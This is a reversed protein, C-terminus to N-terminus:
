CTRERGQNRIRHRTRTPQRDGQRRRRAARLRVVATAVRAAACKQGGCLVFPLLQNPGGTMKPLSEVLDASVTPRSSAPLSRIATRRSSIATSRSRRLPRRARRIRRARREAVSEFLRGGSDRAQGRNPERDAAGPGGMTSGAFTVWTAHNQRSYLSCSHVPFNGHILRGHQIEEFGEQGRGYFSVISQFLHKFRDIYPPLDHCFVVQIRGPVSNDLRRPLHKGLTAELARRDAVDALRGPRVHRGDVVVEAVLLPEVDLRDHPGVLPPEILGLKRIPVRVRRRALLEGIEDVRKERAHEAAWVVGPSRPQHHALDHIRDAAQASIAWDFMRGCNSIRCAIRRSSSGVTSSSSSNCRVANLM